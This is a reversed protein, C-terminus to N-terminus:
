AAAATALVNRVLRPLMPVGTRIVTRRPKGAFGSDVGSLADFPAFRFDYVYLRGGPKLVRALQPGATRPDDWHHLSLSSVILDFSADPFPLATVDAQHAEVRGDFEAVNRRAASVMDPSLDIGVVRLDPRRRGIEQLLVGPGTGVDLVRGGEPALEVVDDAVRRYIGRVLRRAVLDYFRSPHGQFFSPANRRRGHRLHALVSHMGVGM